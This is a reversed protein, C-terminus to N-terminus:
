KCWFSLVNLSKAIKLSTFIYATGKLRPPQPKVKDHFLFGPDYPWKSFYTSLIELDIDNLSSVLVRKTPKKKKDFIRSFLTAM